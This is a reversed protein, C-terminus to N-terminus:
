TTTQPDHTAEIPPKLDPGHWPEPPPEVANNLCANYKKMTAVMGGNAACFTGGLLADDVLRPANVGAFRM